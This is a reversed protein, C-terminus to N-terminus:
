FGGVHDDGRIDAVGKWRGDEMRMIAEVRGIPEREIIQHGVAEIIRRNKANIAEKEVYITDPKWQHHFRPFHVAQELSLNFDIINVIVQFVSTIITSGGPTGLVMYLQDDKEVITPTMSSLMRKHPAIQNAESGMLGYYNPSGAKISFDDMENNLLFGANEVVTFSGYSGNLTTTVSVAQGYPDVISFHTTEESEPNIYPVSDSFTARRPDFDSMREALYQKDLLPRVPVPYFDSDGMYLARDAYVRREAETMLHIAAPSQFGMESLNFPEVMQLLQGLAVGGSSPPPMSYITHNKYNFSVPERWVARYSALDEMSIIGNGKGMEDVIARAVWGSYFGEKGYDRIEELTHSLSKQILLDGEEWLDKHFATTHFNNKRFHPQNKNLNDAEMKTIKFGGSALDIAPQILAAWNKLRSYQEFAEYMGAVTGPVGAALHGYLSKGPVPQGDIDLYMDRDAKAPAKERFDLAVVIGNSDRYIMFGGGGINGAGPYCVALAMQVAIAADVANGGMRLIELGVETAIPHATVVMASDATCSKAFTYGSEKDSVSFKCQVFLLIIFIPLINTVRM